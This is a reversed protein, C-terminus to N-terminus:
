LIVQFVTTSDMHGRSIIAYKWIKALFYNKDYPSFASPFLVSFERFHSSALSWMKLLFFGAKQAANLYSIALRAKFSHQSRPIWICFFCILMTLNVSSLLAQFESTRELALDELELLSQEHRSFTIILTDQPVSPLYSYFWASFQPVSYLFYM